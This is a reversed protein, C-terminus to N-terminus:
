LRTSKRDFPIKDVISSLVASAWLIAYGTTALNGGTAAVLKDALLRLVGSHDVRQILSFLGVFFFITIWDVGGFTPHINHAAKESLHQWNDLLMLIAGGCMAI